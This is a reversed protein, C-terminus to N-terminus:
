RRFRHCRHYFIENQRFYYNGPNKLFILVTITLKWGTFCSFVNVKWSLKNIVGYFDKLKFGNKVRENM